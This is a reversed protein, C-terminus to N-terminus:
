SERGELAALRLLSMSKEFANLLTQYQVANKTMLVMQQDLEVSDASAAVVRPQTMQLLAAQASFPAGKSFQAADALENEFSVELPHYGPTNANAINAAYVAQRLACADLRHSLLDLVPDVSFM